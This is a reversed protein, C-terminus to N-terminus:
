KRNVKAWGSGTAEGRGLFLLFFLLLASPSSRPRLGAEKQEKVRESTSNTLLAAVDLRRTAADLDEGTAETKM